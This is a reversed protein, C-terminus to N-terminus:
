ALTASWSPSFFSLRFFCFFDLGVLGSGPGQLLALPAEGNGKVDKTGLEKDNLSFAKPKPKNFVCPSQALQVFM